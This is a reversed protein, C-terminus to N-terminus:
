NDENTEMPSPNLESEKADANQGVGIPVVGIIEGCFSNTALLKPGWSVHNLLPSM